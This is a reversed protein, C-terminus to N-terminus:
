IGVEYDLKRHVPASDRKATTQHGEPKVNTPAGGDDRIGVPKMQGSDLLEFEDREIMEERCRQYEAVKRRPSKQTCKLMSRM